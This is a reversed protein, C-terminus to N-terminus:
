LEYLCGKLCTVIFVLTFTWVVWVNAKHQIRICISFLVLHALMTVGLVYSDTVESMISPYVGVTPLVIAMPTTLTVMAVICKEIARVFRTSRNARETYSM